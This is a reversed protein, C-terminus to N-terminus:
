RKAASPRIEDAIDALMTARTDSGQTPAWMLKVLPTDSDTDAAPVINATGLIARDRPIPRSEGRWLGGRDHYVPQNFRAVVELLDGRIHGVGTGDLIAGSAGQLYRSLGEPTLNPTIKVLVVNPDVVPLAVISGTETVIEVPRVAACQPQM